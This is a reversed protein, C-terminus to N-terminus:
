LFTNVIRSSHVRSYGGPSNLLDNMRTISAYFIVLLFAYIMINKRVVKNEGFKPELKVFLLGCSLAVSPLFYFTQYIHNAVARSFLCAYLTNGAAFALIMKDSFKLKSSIFIKWISCIVVGSFVCWPIFTYNVIAHNWASQINKWWTTNNGVGSVWSSIESLNEDLGTGNKAVYIQFVVASMGVLFTLVSVKIFIKLKESGNIVCGFIIAFLTTVIVAHWSSFLVGLWGLSLIICWKKLNTVNSAFGCISAYAVIMFFMLGPVHHNAIRGCFLGMPVVAFTIVAICRGLRNKLISSAIPCFLVLSGMQLFSMALRILVPTDLGTIWFWSALYLAVFPPHHLYPSMVRTVRNTYFDQGFTASLGQTLHSRAFSSFLASNDEHVLMLPSTNEYTFGYVTLVMIAILEWNRALFRSGACCLRKDLYYFVLTTIFSLIFVFWLGKSVHRNLPTVNFVAESLGKNEVSKLFVPRLSKSDVIVNAYFENRMRPNRYGGRIRVQSTDGPILVRYKYDRDREVKLPISWKWQMGKVTAYQVAVDKFHTFADQNKSSLSFIIERQNSNKLNSYLVCGLYVVFSTVIFVFLTAAIRKVSVKM